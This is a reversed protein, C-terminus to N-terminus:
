ASSKSATLMGVIIDESFMKANVTKTRGDCLAGIM